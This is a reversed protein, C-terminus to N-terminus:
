EDGRLIDLLDQGEKEERMIYKDKEYPGPCYKQYEYKNIYEVAKDIKILAEYLDQNLIEYREKFIEENKRYEKKNDKLMENLLTNERKYEKLLKYLQKNIINM